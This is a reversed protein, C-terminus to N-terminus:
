AQHSWLHKEVLTWSRGLLLLAVGLYFYIVNISISNSTSCQAYIKNCLINTYVVWSELAYRGDLPTEM